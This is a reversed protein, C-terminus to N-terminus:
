GQEQLIVLVLRQIDRADVVGNRDVDVAETFANDLVAQIVLQLDAANVEGSKNVDFPDDIPVGLWDAALPYSVDFRGYYDPEDTAYCSARGGWLQGIFLQSDELLLPSGSSGGETTGASWLVEHYRARSSLPNDNNSPSGSEVLNGFSIRKFDGSPHHIGTVPTDVTQPETAFGLYVLGPPPDERLQLLTFDTGTSRSSTTLLDAGGTTRPVTAPAPAAEGCAPSQYLWYVEINAAAGSSGVCHNATVFYPISSNPTSDVLLSGTCWLAGENGISGIGGVGLAATTWAPYCAVDLNCDGAAKAFPLKDLSRYLHAIRDVTIAVDGDSDSPVFVLVDVSEAFCSASWEADPDLAYREQTDAANVLFATADEPLTFAAFHVRMGVAGPSHITLRAARRGNAAEHWQGPADLPARLRLPRPLERFVGYRTAHKADQARAADEEIIPGLDLAGLHTSDAPRMSKPLAPLTPPTRRTKAFGPAIEPQRMVPATDWTKEAIGRAALADTDLRNWDADRYLDVAPGGDRPAVRYGTVMEDRFRTRETWSVVLRYVELDYGEWALWNATLDDVAGGACDACEGATVPVVASLAFLVVLVGIARATFTRM